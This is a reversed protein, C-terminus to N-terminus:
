GKNHLLIKHIYILECPIHTLGSRISFYKRYFILCHKHYTYVHWKLLLTYIKKLSFDPGANRRRQTSLRMVNRVDMTGKQITHTKSTHANKHLNYTIDDLSYDKHAKRNEM